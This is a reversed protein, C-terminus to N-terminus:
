RPIRSSVKSYEKTQNVEEHLRFVSQRLENLHASIRNERNQTSNM